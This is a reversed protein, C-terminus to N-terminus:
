TCNRRIDFKVAQLSRKSIGWIRPLANIINYQRHNLKGWWNARTIAATAPSEHAHDSTHRVSCCRADTWVSASNQLLLSKTSHGPSVVEHTACLDKQTACFCKQTACLDMQTACLNTSRHWVYTSVICPCVSSWTQCLVKSSGLLKGATLCWGEPLARYWSGWSLCNSSTCDEHQDAIECTSHKAQLM